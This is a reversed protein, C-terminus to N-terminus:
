HAGCHLAHCRARLCECIQWCYTEVCCGLMAVLCTGCASQLLLCLTGISISPLTLPLSPTLLIIDRVFCIMVIRQCNNCLKTHVLSVIFLFLCVFSRGAENAYEDFTQTSEWMEGPGGRGDDGSLCYRNLQYQLCSDGDADVFAAPSNACVLVM